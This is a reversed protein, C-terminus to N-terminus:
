RMVGFSPIKVILEDMRLISRAIEEIAYETNFLYSPIKIYEENM